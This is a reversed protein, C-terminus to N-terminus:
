AVRALVSRLGAELDIRPTWGTAESFPATDCSWDPWTLERVKGPSLMPAHGTIRSLAVTIRSIGSLLGRPIPLLQVKRGTIATVADAIESWRYGEVRADSLEFPGSGLPATATLMMADVLDQVHILTVRADRTGPVPALGRAFAQLLPKLEVDGPRYVATPRLIVADLSAIQALLSEGARKSAAYDSLQPERAALSSLLMVRCHPAHRQVAELLQRTGEVNVADFARRDAGRVAGACHFLTGAGDLLRALAARDLLDGRVIGIRAPLAATTRRVLARVSAHGSTCLRACLARGIFGTAGTIAIPAAPIGPAPEPPM